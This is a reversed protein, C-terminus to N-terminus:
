TTLENLEKNWDIDTTDPLISQEESAKTRFPFSRETTIVLNNRMEDCLLLDAVMNTYVVGKVVITRGEVANGVLVVYGRKRLEMECAESEESSRDIKWNGLVYGFLELVSPKM